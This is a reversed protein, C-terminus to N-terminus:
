NKEKRSTNLDVIEADFLEVAVRVFDEKEVLRTRQRKTM